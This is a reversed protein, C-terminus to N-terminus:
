FKVWYNVIGAMMIITLFISTILFGIQGAEKYAKWSSYLWLPQVVLNLILAWEPYKAALAINAGITFTPLLFQTAIDLPSRKKTPM